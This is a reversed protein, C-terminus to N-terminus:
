KALLPLSLHSPASCFIGIVTVSQFIMLAGEITCGSGICINFEAKQSKPHLLELGVTASFRSQGPPIEKIETHSTGWLGGGWEIELLQALRRCVLLM